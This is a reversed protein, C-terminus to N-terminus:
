NRSVLKKSPTISKQLASFIVEESFSQRAHEYFKYLVEADGFARHRSKCEINLREIVQDLNHHKYEPYLSRSLKVTCLRDACFSIGVNKFEECIFSYDFQANHAVIIANSFLKALDIAIDEFKPSKYVMEDTIGTINSIFWPIKRQPNLLTSFTYVLKGNEYTLAAIETIKDYGLRSGTTEIDLFVFKREIISDFLIM